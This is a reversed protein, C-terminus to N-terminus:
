ELSVNMEITLGYRLLNSVPCSMHAEEAIEKFTAEDIEGAKGRVELHIKAINFGNNTEALLCTAKTTIREPEHGKESLTHAFAMSFCGAHAAALLEELNTGRQDGFRTKFTYEVKSLTGSETSVMGRGGTLNGIWTAEATRKIDPV